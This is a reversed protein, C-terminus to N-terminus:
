NWQGKAKLKAIHREVADPDSDMMDALDALTLETRATDGSAMANQAKVGEAATAVQQQSRQFQGNPARAPQQSQAPTQQAAQAPAKGQFGRGRALNYYLEAPNQGARVAMEAVARRDADLAQRIQQQSAGPMMIALESARSQALFETADSYDPTQSAFQQEQAEVHGWFQREAAVQQWQAAHQDNGKRLDEIVKQQAEIRGVLHGLPDEELSPIQIQPQTQQEPRQQPQEMQQEILRQFLTEMKEAKAAAAKRAEREAKLAGQLNRYNEPTAAKDPQAEQKTEPLTEVTEPLASTERSVNETNGSDEGGMEKELAAWQAAEAADAPSIQPTQDAIVTQESM